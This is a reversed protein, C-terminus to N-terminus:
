IRAQDNYEKIVETNTLLVLDFVGLVTGIPMMICNVGGMVLSFTRRRRQAIYRGSLITLAGMTWGFLVFAGGFAAFLIGMILPPANNAQGEGFLSAGTVISIGISFHILGFCGFFAHLGGAVYHCISLIRLQERTAM